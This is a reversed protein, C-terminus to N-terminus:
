YIGIPNRTTLLLRGSSFLIRGLGNYNKNFFINVIIHLM